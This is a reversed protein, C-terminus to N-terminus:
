PGSPGSTEEDPFRCSSGVAICLSYRTAVGGDDVVLLYYDGPDLQETMTEDSGPTRSSAIVSADDSEAAILGINSSDSAGLPRAASRITVIPFDLDVEGPVTFRIWDVDYPNDITLTDAFPLAVPTDDAADCYDNEELRDALIRPDATLYGDRVTVSYRGPPAGYFATLLDQASVDKLARVLTIPTTPPVARGLALFEGRCYQGSFGVAWSPGVGSPFSAPVNGGAMVVPDFNTVVPPTTSFIFTLSGLGQTRHFRFADPGEGAVVALAPNHFLTDQGRVPPGDLDVQPPPAQLEHYLDPLRVLTTDPAVATAGRNTLAVLRDTGAPYPVWFSMRGAGQAEGSFSPRDPILDAQGLSARTIEEVGIGFLTVQEGYRVTTPRISDIALPGAVRLEVVGPESNALESAFAQIQLTGENVPTVLATGDRRSDVTALDLRASKWDFAVGRLETLGGSADRRWAHASLVMTRGQLLLTTPADITVAVEATHDTPLVCASLVQAGACALAVARRSLRPPLSPMPIPTWDWCVSRGSGRWAISPSQVCGEKDTGPGRRM